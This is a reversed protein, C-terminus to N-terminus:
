RGSDESLDPLIHGGAFFYVIFSCLICGIGLVFFGVGVNYMEKDM